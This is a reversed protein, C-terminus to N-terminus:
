DLIGLAVLRVEQQVTILARLEAQAAELQLSELTEISRLENLRQRIENESAGGSKANRLDERRVKRNEALAIRRDLVAEVYPMLVQTEDPGLFLSREAKALLIRKRIPAPEFMQTPDEYARAQQEWSQSRRDFNDSLDQFERKQADTLVSEIEKELELRMEEMPGRMSQFDPRDQGPQWSEAMRKFMKKMGEDMVKKVHAAQEDDLQLEETLYDVIRKTMDGDGGFPNRRPAEGESGGGDQALGPAALLFLSLALSLATLALRRM